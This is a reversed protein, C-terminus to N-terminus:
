KTGQAGALKALECKMAYFRGEGKGPTVPARSALKEDNWSRRERARNRRANAIMVRPTVRASSFTISIM